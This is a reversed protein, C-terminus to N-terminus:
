RDKTVIYFSNYGRNLTANVFEAPTPPYVDECTVTHLLIIFVGLITLKM